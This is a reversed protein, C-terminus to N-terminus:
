QGQERFARQNAAEQRYKVSYKYASIRGERMIEDGLFEKLYDKHNYITDTLIIITNDGEYFGIEDFKDRVVNEDWNAIAWGYRRLAYLAGNRAEEPYILVREEKVNLADFKPKAALLDKYVRAYYLNYDLTYREKLQLKVKLSSHVIGVLLVSVIVYNFKRKPLYQIIVYVSNLINIFITFSILIFYYDHDRFQKYFLLIYTFSGLLSFLGLLYLFRNAKKYGGLGILIVILFIIHFPKVYYHTWWFNTVLEFVADIEVRSLKWIPTINTLFYFNNFQDNYWNIYYAWTIVLLLSILQFCLWYKHKKISEIGFNDSFIIALSISGYVLLFTPKLLAAWTLFIFTWIIWKFNPKDLYCKAFYFGILSFSCATADPLYNNEYYQLVGSSFLLLCLAVSIPWFNLFKQVTKYFLIIAITSWIFNWFRLYLINEGFVNEFCAILYYHLPFECIGKGEISELSYSGTNFFKMGNERYFQIFNLGDIQRIFHISDPGYFLYQFTGIYFFYVLLLLIFASLGWNENELLNKKM